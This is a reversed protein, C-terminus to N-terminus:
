LEIVTILKINQKEEQWYIEEISKYNELIVTYKINDDLRIYTVEFIKNM